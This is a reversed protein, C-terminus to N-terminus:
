AATLEVKAQDVPDPAPKWGIALVTEAGSGALAVGYGAAEFARAVRLAVARYDDDQLETYAVMGIAGDLPDFLAVELGSEGRKLETTIREGIAGIIEDAVREIRAFIEQVEEIPPIRPDSM